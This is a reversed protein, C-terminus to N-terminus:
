FYEEWYDGPYIMEVLFSNTIDPVVYVNKYQKFIMLQGPTVVRHIDHVISGFEDIFRNIEPDYLYSRVDHEDVM